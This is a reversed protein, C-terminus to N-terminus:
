RGRVQAIIAPLTKLLLKVDLWFSNQKKYAIDLRMM